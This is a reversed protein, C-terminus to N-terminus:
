LLATDPSDCRKPKHYAPPYYINPTTLIAVGGPKLLALMKEVMYQADALTLHEILEFACILDFAGSVEDIHKFDHDFTPDIDCSCYGVEGWYDKLKQEFGRDGAGVELVSFGSRGENAVVQHYRRAVPLDWIDGFQKAIARRHHYLNQWDISM